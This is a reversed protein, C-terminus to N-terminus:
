AELTLLLPAHDSVVDPLVRFDAVGVDPTVLAYDAFKGPKAYLCTRTSTVGYEKVLNRFGARELMAMSETDPDLNFDGVLATPVEFPHLIDLIRASQNLRDPHDGKGYGGIWLGHFNVLRLGNGLDTVLIKRCHAGENGPELPKRPDDGFVFHESHSVIGVSTRVFTCLGYDDGYFNSFRHEFGPLLEAFTEVTRRIEDPHFLPDFETEGTDRMMEQLCFADASDRYAEVFRLIEPNIRAGWVNLSLINM